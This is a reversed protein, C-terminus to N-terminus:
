YNIIAAIVITVLAQILSLSVNHKMYKSADSPAGATTPQLTTPMGVNGPAPTPVRTLATGADSDAPGDVANLLFQDYYYESGLRDSNHIVVTVDL